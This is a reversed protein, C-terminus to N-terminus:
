FEQFPSLGHSYLSSLHEDIVPKLAALISEITTGKEVMYTRIDKRMVYKEVDPDDSIRIEINEIGLTEILANIKKKDSGPSATLGMLQVGRLRCEDAIYTYAYRGVARHCEDFIVIGFDELGVRGKKLDNSFTQPTAAIVKAHAEKEKRTNGVMSGTLLLIHESDVKLMRTLSNCHQESLPKTPALFLAKRGEHLAKAMAFVAILTKGLGTPLVVLTNRGSYVSRIINIQYARPEVLETNVMRDYPNLDNWSPDM